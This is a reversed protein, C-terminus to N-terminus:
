ITVESSKNDATPFLYWNTDVRIRWFLRRSYRFGIVLRGRGENRFILIGELGCPIQRYLRCPAVSGIEQSCVSKAPLVNDFELSFCLGTLTECPLWFLFPPAFIFDVVL